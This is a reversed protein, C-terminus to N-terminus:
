AKPIRIMISREIRGTSVIRIAYASFDSNLKGDKDHFNYNGNKVIVTYGSARVYGIYNDFERKTVKIWKSLNM